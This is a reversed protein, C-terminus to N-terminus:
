AKELETVVPVDHWSTWTTERNLTTKGESPAGSYVIKDQEQRYQLVREMEPEYRGYENMVIKGTPREIWRLQTMNRLQIM